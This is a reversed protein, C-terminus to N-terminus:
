RLTEDLFDIAADEADRALALTAAHGRGKVWYLQCRVGANKLATQLLVSHEPSVTEDDMGHYLFFPPDDPSVYTIPSAEHFIAPNSEYTAGLFKPLIDGGPYLPLDAPGGGAVVAQVRLNPPADKTGILEALHGGASYGYTAVKRPDLHYEAAHARFWALAQYIDEVPAPYRFEPMGRYSTNMVVYGRKALKRAILTMQWRHDASSWSGGYILVVGPWPGAGKPQYLDAELMKPWGAPTFVVDSKTEFETDIRKGAVAATSPASSACGFFVLAVILGFLAAAFRLIM